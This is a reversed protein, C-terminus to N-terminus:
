QVRVLVSQTAKRGASDEATLTYRTDTAPSIEVCRSISPKLPEVGPEIRVSHASSVGYCLLGKQGRRVIGPVAYFSLIKLEGSGYMEVIRANARAKQAEAAREIARNSNWRSFFVWAVYMLAVCLAATTYPLLKRLISGLSM